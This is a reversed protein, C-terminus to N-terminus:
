AIITSQPNKSSVTVTCSCVSFCLCHILPIICQAPGWCFYLYTIKQLVSYWLLRNALNLCSEWPPRLSDWWSILVHDESLLVYIKFRKINNIVKRTDMLLRLSMTNHCYHVWTKRDLPLKESTSWLISSHSTARAQDTKLNFHGPDEESRCM